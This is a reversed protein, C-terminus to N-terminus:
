FSAQLTTHLWVDLPKVGAPPELDFMMTLSTKLAFHKSAQALFETESLLQLDHGRDIRPQAYITHALRFGESFHSVIIFYASFRHTLEDEHPGGKKLPNIREFQAMYALAFAIEAGRTHAVNVRFGSGGVTRLGLRRFEDRDHQIFAELAVPGWFDFRYRLHELDKNLFSQGARVGFDFRGLLFLQHRGEVYRGFVSGSALFLDTNGSRYDLSAEVAGSFGDQAHKAILPQVNVIQARAPGASALWLLSLLKLLPSRGTWRRRLAAGRIGPM